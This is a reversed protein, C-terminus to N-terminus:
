QRVADRLARQMAVAHLQLDYATGGHGAETLSAMALEIEFAEADFPDAGRILKAADTFVIPSASGAGAVMRMAGDAAISVAGIAEAFEGTKRCFKYYGCRAARGAAPVRIATLVEDPALDSLMAAKVLDAVALRREGNPGAIDVRAGLALFASLWDASPDAHALSGGLTGRNRVARYAIGRAVRRLFGGATDPTRGDEVAAHSVCAGLVLDGGDEGARLLAPLRTIDILLEPQVLRLNLMPGLTQAGAMIKAGPRTALLEVAEEVGRPRTYDFAVPKM